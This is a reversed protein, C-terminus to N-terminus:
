GKLEQNVRDQLEHILTQLHAVGKGSAKGADLLSDALADLFEQDPIRPWGPEPTRMHTFFITMERRLVARVKAPLQPPTTDKPM